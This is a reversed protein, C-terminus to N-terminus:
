PVPYRNLKRLDNKQVVKTRKIEAARFFRM